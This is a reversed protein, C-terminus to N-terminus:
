GVKDFFEDIIKQNDEATVERRLVASAMAMAMDTIDDRMDALMQEHEHRADQEAKQVIAHAEDRAEALISDSESRAQDVSAKVRAAHEQAETRLLGEYEAKMAAAEESQREAAAQAEQQAALRADMFKKVPKYLLTRLLVFLLLLNAMHIVVSLPDLGMM